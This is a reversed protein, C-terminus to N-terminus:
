HGKPFSTPNIIVAYGMRPFPLFDINAKTDAATAAARVATNLEAQKADRQTVAASLAARLGDLDITGDKQAKKEGSTLARQAARVVKEAKALESKAVTVAKATEQVATTLDSKHDKSVFEGLYTTDGGLTDPAGLRRELLTVGHAALVEHVSRLYGRAQEPPLRLTAALDTLTVSASVQAMVAERRQVALKARFPNDSLDVPSVPTGVNRVLMWFEDSMRALAPHPAEEDGQVPTSNTNPEAANGNPTPPTPTRSPTVSSGGGNQDDDNGNNTDPLNWHGIVRDTVAEAHARALDAESVAIDVRGDGMSMSISASKEPDILRCGHVRTRAEDATRGERVRYPPREIASLFRSRSLPRRGVSATFATYASYLDTKRTAWEPSVSSPTVWADNPAIEVREAMFESVPNTAETFARVADAAPPLFQGGRAMRAKRAELLRNLIGPLEARLRAGIGRDEQGVNSKTFHVPCLRAGVAGSTDNFHPLDNGMFVMYARSYFAWLRGYKLEAPIADGGLAQKLTAFDFIAADPTEGSINLTKRYLKANQVPRNASMEALSMSTQFERPVMASIIDNGLTGKGARPEGYLYLARDPARLGAATDLLGTLADLLILAQDTGDALATAQPLWGDFEPCTADPDYVVALKSTVFVDPSFPLLRGTEMDLLGNEVPLLGATDPVEPIVKGQAHLKAQIIEAVSTVFTSRYDDGLLDALADCIIAAGRQSGANRDAEYLGSDCNYRYFVGSEADVALPAMDMIAEACAKARLGGAYPHFFKHEDADVRRRSPRVDAPSPIADDFLTLMFAPRELPPISALIDDLGSKDATWTDLVATM